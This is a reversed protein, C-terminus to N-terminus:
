YYYRRLEPQASLMREYEGVPVEVDTNTAHTLLLITSDFEAEYHKRQSKFM